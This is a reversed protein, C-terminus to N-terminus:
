DAKEVKEQDTEFTFSKFIKDFVPILEHFKDETHNATLVAIEENRVYFCVKEKQIVGNKEFTYVLYLAEDDRSKIAGKEQLVM